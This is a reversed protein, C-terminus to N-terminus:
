PAGQAAVSPKLRSSLSGYTHIPGTDVFEFDSGHFYKLHATFEPTWRADVQQSLGWTAGNHALLLGYAQLASCLGRVDEPAAACDVAAKLRLRGGMPPYDPNEWPSGANIAPDVYGRQSVRSNVRLAHSPGAGNVVEDYRLLGPYVPLGSCDHALSRAVDSETWGLRRPAGGRMDFNAAYAAHWPSRSSVGYLEYLRCASTDVVVVRADRETVGATAPIRYPGPDSHAGGDLILDTAPTTADAFAVPVRDAISLSGDGMSAVWAASQPHVPLASVDTNWADDPPAVACTGAPPACGAVLVL